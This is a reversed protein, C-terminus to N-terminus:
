AWILLLKQTARAQKRPVLTHPVRPLVCLTLEEDAVTPHPRLGM